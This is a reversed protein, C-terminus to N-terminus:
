IKMIPKTQWCVNIQERLTDLENIKIKVEDTHQTATRININGKIDAVTKEYVKKLSDRLSTTSVSGLMPQKVSKNSNEKFYINYTSIGLLVSSVLILLISLLLLKDYKNERM